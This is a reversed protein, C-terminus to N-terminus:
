VRCRCCVSRKVTSANITSTEDKLGLYSLLFAVKATLTAVTAKLADIEAPAKPSSHPTTDVEDAVQHTQNLVFDIADVTSNISRSSPTTIKRNTPSITGKSAKASKTTVTSEVAAQKHHKRHEHNLLTSHEEGPFLHSVRLGIYHYTRRYLFNNTTLLTKSVVAKPQHTLTWWSISLLLLEKTRLVAAHTLIRRSSQKNSSNTSTSAAARSQSRTSSTMTGNNIVRWRATINLSRNLRGYKHDVTLVTTSVDVDVSPRSM